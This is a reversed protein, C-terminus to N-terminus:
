FYVRVFPMFADTYVNDSDNHLVNYRVGITVNNTRYGAGIFLATNWFDNSNLSSNDYNVNVRLQEVEASLQIEQIPNVLAMVSGGYMHSNYFGKFKSYNYQLSTGLAFKSNVNYIASPAVSINSGNGSFGLGFGGGFQVKKWFESKEKVEQADIKSVFFLMLSFIFVILKKHSIKKM